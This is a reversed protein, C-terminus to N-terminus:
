QEQPGGNLALKQYWFKGWTLFSTRKTHSTSMEVNGIIKEDSQVRLGNSEGFVYTLIQIDAVGKKVIFIVLCM